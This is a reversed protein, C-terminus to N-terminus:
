DCVCSYLYCLLLVRSRPAKEPKENECNECMCCLLLIDFAFIWKGLLTLKMNIFFRKVFSAPYAPM